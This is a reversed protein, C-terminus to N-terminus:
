TSNRLVNDKLDNRKKRLRITTSLPCVNKLTKKKIHVLETISADQIEWCRCSNIFKISIDVFSKLTISSLGQLLQSIEYIAYSHMQICVVCHMSSPLM